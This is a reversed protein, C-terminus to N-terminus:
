RGRRVRWGIVALASGLLLLTGPEPTPDVPPDEDWGPGYVEVVTSITELAFVTVPPSITVPAHVTVLPGCCSVLPPDVPIAWAPTALLLLGLALGTIRM